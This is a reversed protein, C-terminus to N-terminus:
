QAVGKRAAGIMERLDGVRVRTSGGVKVFSIKGSAGDRYLSARSRQAIKGAQALTLLASDPAADFDQLANFTVTAMKHREFFFGGFRTTFSFLGVM